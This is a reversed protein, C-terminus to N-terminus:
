VVSVDEWSLTHTKVFEMVNATSIEKCKDLLFKHSNRTGEIAEMFNWVHTMLSSNGDDLKFAELLSSVHPNMEQAPIGRDEFRKLAYM